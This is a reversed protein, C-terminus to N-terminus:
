LPPSLVYVFERFCDPDRIGFAVVDFYAKTEILAKRFIRAIQEAPPNGNTGCGFAGLVVHRVKKEILTQLIARIRRSTEVADRECFVRPKGNRLMGMFKPAARLEYFLFIDDDPLIQYKKEGPTQSHAPGRICVRPHDYDLYVKGNRAELLATFEPMYMWTDDYVVDTRSLSFHCDTRRFMDEEDGAEGFRYGGGPSHSNAVNLVAFQKGFNKTMKLATEGWDLMEIFVVCSPPPPRLSAENAWRQLNANGLDHYEGPSANDFRRFTKLLVIQRIRNGLPFGNDPPEIAPMGGFDASSLRVAVPTPGDPAIRNLYNYIRRNYERMFRCVNSNFGVVTRINYCLAQPYERIILEENHMLLEQNLSQMEACKMEMENLCDRISRMGSMGKHTVVYFVNM